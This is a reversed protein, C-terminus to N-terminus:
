KFKLTLFNNWTLGSCILIKIKDRFCVHIYGFVIKDCNKKESLDHKYAHNLFFVVLAVLWSKMVVFFTGWRM